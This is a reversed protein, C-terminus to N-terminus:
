CRRASCSRRPEVDVPGLGEPRAAARLEDAQAAVGLHAVVAQGEARVVRQVGLGHEVDAEAEELVADVHQGVVEAGRGGCSAPCGRADVQAVVEGGAQGEELQVAAGGLDAEAGAEVGAAAVARQGLVLLLRLDDDLRVRSAPLWVSFNPTSM